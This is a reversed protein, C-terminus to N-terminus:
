FKYKLSLNVLQSDGPIFEGNTTGVFTSSQSTADRNQRDQYLYSFGVEMDSNIEYNAGFSYVYAKADPMEFGVYKDEAVSDDISFGCMLRLKDTAKYGLGFRYTNGNKWKKPHSDDIIAKTIPHTIPEDYEFDLEKFASWYTKEYAFLFTFDSLDYALALNLSAPLPISLSTPVFRRTGNEVLDTDGEVKIDVKSRYTAAFSLNNIPRYTLALNYGFDLGDGDVDRSMNYFSGLNTQSKITGDTYIGRAGLGFSLNDSIQYAISPALEYIRVEFKKAVSSPYRDPWEITLGAPVNFSLGFRFRDAFFPSVYYNTFGAVSFNNSKTDSTGPINSRNKFETHGLHIFFFNFDINHRNELFIMNAPNYYAADAGFSKAINSASLAMSDTSQEPIKYGAGFLTSVFTLPLIFKIFKM